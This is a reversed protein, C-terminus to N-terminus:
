LLILIKKALQESLDFHKGVKDPGVMLEIFDDIGMDRLVQAAGNVISANDFDIHTERYKNGRDLQENKPLIDFSRYKIPM